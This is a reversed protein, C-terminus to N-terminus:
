HEGEVEEWESDDHGSEANAEHTFSQIRNKPEKRINRALTSSKRGGPCIDDHFRSLGEAKILTTMIDNDTDSLKGIENKTTTKRTCLKKRLTCEPMPDKKRIAKRKPQRASEIDNSKISNKSHKIELNSRSCKIGQTKNESIVAFCSNGLRKTKSRSCCKTDKSTYSTDGVNSIQRSVISKGDTSIFEDILKDPHKVKISNRRTWRFRQLSDHSVDRVICDTKLRATSADSTLISGRKTATDKDDMWDVELRSSIDTCEKSLKSTKRGLPRSSSAKQKM